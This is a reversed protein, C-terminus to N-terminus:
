NVSSRFTRAQIREGPPETAADPKGVAAPELPNAPNPMRCRKERVGCRPRMPEPADDQKKAVTPAGLDVEKEVRVIKQAM